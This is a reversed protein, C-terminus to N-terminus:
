EPQINARKVISAVTAIDRKVAQALEEPTSSVLLLGGQDLKTRVEATRVIRDLEGHLRTVIPQPLAAPGFFGSWLPPSLFGPVAEKVSPADPAGPFRKENLVALYRVKGSKAHPELSFMPASAVLIRGAIIDTIVQDGGKYPIHNITAGTLQQMMELALHHSTGLGSTGYNVKGPNAKAYEIMSGLNGFPASPPSALAIMTDWSLTIPTFDKVPDYPVNKVMFGRQIQTSGTTSLLTHGDPAARAVTTAGIAGGAGAQNEVLFPQGLTETLRQCILRTIADIGGSYTLIMRVPKSPYAQAHALAPLLLATAALAGALARAAFPASPNV